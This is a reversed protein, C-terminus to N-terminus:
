YEDQPKPVGLQERGRDLANSDIEGLLDIFNMDAMRLARGVLFPVPSTPESQRFYEAAKRLLMLAENRNTPKCANINMGSYTPAVSPMQRLEGDPGDAPTDGPTERHAFEAYFREFHRLEKGLTEFEIYGRSAMRENMIDAIHAVLRQIEKTLTLKETMVDVPVTMMEAHFVASAPATEDADIAGTVMMADRLTAGHNEVLTLDRLKATFMIPDNYAGASPSLMALINIRETPDNDDGPDLQPYFDDWHNAILDDIIKLGDRLGSLGELVTCAVTLYAAVRLDRTNQWIELASRRLGRWDPDRGAVVVGGMESAPVGSALEALKVYLPDYELNEGAFSTESVPELLKQIEM